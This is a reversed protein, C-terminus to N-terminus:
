RKHQEAQAKELRAQRITERLQTAYANFSVGDERIVGDQITKKGQFLGIVNYCDPDSRTELDMFLPEAGEKLFLLVDEDIRFEPMDSVRLGTDGVIGGLIRVVVFRKIPKPRFFDEHVRVTVFTYIYSENEDFACEIKTVKGRVVDTSKEVLQKKTMQIMVARADSALLFVASLALWGCVVIKRM